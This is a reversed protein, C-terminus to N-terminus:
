RQRGNIPWNDTRFPVLPQGMTTRVNAEPAYNKFAYRVAVPAPVADSWVKIKTGWEVYQASAPYFVRDEGAIEFGKPVVTRDDPYTLFNTYCYNYEGPGFNNFSLVISNDDRVIDRYTPAPLPLGEVGYDNRLALFALRDGVEEKKPPHICAANGLDTTAAVGCYPIETAALYQSEITLPLALGEPNWDYCHPALQVMYFPMKMDGWLERWHRVHSVLLSKYDIGNWLNAEGQYWIFGKATFNSVPLIMGNYLAQATNNKNRGAKSGAHDIGETTDIVDVPMWAEINSGGWHAAVLGIPVGLVKNLMRGFFYATASFSAVSAPSSVKWVGECDSQPEPTSLYGVRFMRIDPYMRAESITKVSNEVPQEGFGRVPMEMNSQGCCVWVEGLLINKLVLEKGDSIRIEYPGGADGTAVKLSWVGNEDARVAYKAGNWSTKVRVRAGPDATGWLRAETNRQLVMNDGLVSPLRVEASVNLALLLGAIFLLTKKM